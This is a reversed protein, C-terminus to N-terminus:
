RKMHEHSSAEYSNLADTENQVMDLGLVQQKRQLAKLSLSSAEPSNEPLHDAESELAVYNIVNMGTHFLSIIVHAYIHGCGDSPPEFDLRHTMPGIIM